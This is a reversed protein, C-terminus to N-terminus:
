KADEASDKKIAEALKQAAVRCAEHYDADAPARRSAKYLIEIAQELTMEM